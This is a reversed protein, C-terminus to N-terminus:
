SLRIKGVRSAKEYNRLMKVYSFAAWDPKGLISNIMGKAKHRDGNAIFPSSLSVYLSNLRRDWEM